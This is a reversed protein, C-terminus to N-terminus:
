PASYYLCSRNSQEQLSCLLSACTFCYVYLWPSNTIIGGRRIVCEGSESERRKICVPRQYNYHSPHLHNSMTAEREREAEQRENEAGDACHIILAWRPKGTREVKLPTFHGRERVSNERGSSILTAREWLPLYPHLCGSPNVAITKYIQRADPARACAGKLHSVLLEVGYVAVIAAGSAAPLQFKNAASGTCQNFWFNVGKPLM